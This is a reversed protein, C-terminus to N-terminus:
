FHQRLKLFPKICPSLDADIGQGTRNYPSVPICVLECRTVPICVLDCLSVPICVLDCPSVPVWVTETLPVCPSQCWIGPLLLFAASGARERGETTVLLVGMDPESSLGCSVTDWGLVKVGRCRLDGSPGTSLPM